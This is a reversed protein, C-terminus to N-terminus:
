SADHFNQACTVDHFNQACNADHYNQTCNHIMTSNRLWSINIYKCFTTKNFVINNECSQM